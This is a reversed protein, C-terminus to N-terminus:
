LAPILPTTASCRYDSKLTGSVLCLFSLAKEDLSRFSVAERIIVDMGYRKLIGQWDSYQGYELVRQIVFSKDREEDLALKDVDWFLYASLESIFSCEKM